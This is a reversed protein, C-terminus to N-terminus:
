KPNKRVAISIRSIGRKKLRDIVAAFPGFRAQSDVRLLVSANVEFSDIYKCLSSITTHRGDLYLSSNKDISITAVPKEIRMTTANSEPLNVSISGQRVFTATALVIVLLVLVIDVFPVINIQDFRKRRM